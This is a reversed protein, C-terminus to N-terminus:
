PVNRRIRNRVVFRNRLRPGISRSEPKKKAKFAPHNVVTEFIKVMRFVQFTAAVGSFLAYVFLLFGIFGAFGSFKYFFNMPLAVLLLAKGVYSCPTVDYALSQAGLAYILASFQVIVFHVFSASTLVFSSHREGSEKELLLQRFKEDGVALWIALGALSFGLLNPLIALPSSFWPRNLWTNHFLLVLLVSVHFYPSRILGHWGGYASWYRSVIRAVGRYQGFFASSMGVTKM